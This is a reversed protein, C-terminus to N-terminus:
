PNPKSPNPRSLIRLDQRTVPNARLREEFKRRNELKLYNGLGLVVVEEGDLMADKRLLPQVLIRGQGDMVTAHGYYALFERVKEFDPNFQEQPDNLASEWLKWNAMPFVLASEGTLTTVFVENGFRESLERRFDAPLKFRGKDDFTAFANGRFM